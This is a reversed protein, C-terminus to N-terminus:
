DEKCNWSVREKRELNFLYSIEAIRIKSITELVRKVQTSETRCGWWLGNDKLKWKQKAM